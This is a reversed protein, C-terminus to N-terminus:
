RSSRKEHLNGFGPQPREDEGRVSRNPRSAGGGGLNVFMTKNKILSITGNTLSHTNICVGVFSCSLSSILQESSEEETLIVCVCVCVCV